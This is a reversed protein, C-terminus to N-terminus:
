EQRPPGLLSHCRLALVAENYGDRRQRLERDLVSFRESWAARENPLM